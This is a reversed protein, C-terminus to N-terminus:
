KRASVQRRFAHISRVACELDILFVNHDNRTITNFRQGGFVYGARDALKALFARFRDGFRQKFPQPGEIHGALVIRGHDHHGACSSM